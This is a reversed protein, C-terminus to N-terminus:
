VSTSITFGHFTTSQNYSLYIVISPYTNKLTGLLSSLINNRYIALHSAFGALINQIKAPTLINIKM